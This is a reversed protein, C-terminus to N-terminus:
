QQPAAAPPVPIDAARMLMELQSEPAAQLWPTLGGLQASDPYLKLRFANVGDRKADDGRYHDRIAKRLQIARSSNNSDVTIAAPPATRDLIQQQTAVPPGLFVGRNESFLIERDFALYGIILPPNFDQRMTVFRSSAATVRLSGGPLVSAVQDLAAQAVDATGKSAALAKLADTAGKADVDKEAAAVAKRADERQQPTAGPDNKVTRLAARRDALAQRADDLAKQDAEAAKRKDALDQNAKDLEAQRAQRAEELAKQKAKAREDMQEPTAGENSGSARTPNQSEALQANLTAIAARMNEVRRNNVDDLSDPASPTLLDVPRPKGVDLGAAGSSADAVSVDVAGTVYIRSVMRLYARPPPPPARKGFLKWKPPPQSSSPADVNRAYPLLYDAHANAWDTLQDSLLVVDTGITNAKQISVSGKAENANLLSMGVPIGSLPVGVNLGGTRSVSFGYSPFGAAPAASWNAQGTAGRQLSRTFEVSTAGPPVVFMDRYFEGYDAPTLRAVHHDLPLFGKDDFRQRQEEVSMPVLFVDGPQVDETLPYVPMVQSATITLCWDRAVQQLQTKRDM